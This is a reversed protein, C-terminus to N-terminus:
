KWTGSEVAKNVYSTFDNPKRGLAREVGYTLRSSRGDMVETFLYTLLSVYEEPVEFSKLLVTYDAISVSRFQIERGTAQAIENVAQQFTMLRPGTVEYLQKSHLDNTLAAVAVEAIDEADIFPETVEGVPLVVMGALIPDLLYSESFNQFFWSARVITWDGALDMVIQECREAEPEGRGSLLVIKKVGCEGALRTFRDIITVAGDVALDPQFSLYVSDIDKLVPAWSQDNNWEFPIEATRSGIRLPWDMKTLREVVRSGTKGTGGLVLIKGKENEQLKM